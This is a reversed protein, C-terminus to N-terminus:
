GAAPLQAVPKFARSWLEGVAVADIEARKQRATAQDIRANIRRLMGEMGPNDASFV